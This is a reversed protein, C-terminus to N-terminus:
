VKRIFECNPSVEVFHNRDGGRSVHQRCQNKALEDIPKRSRHAVDCVWDDIFWNADEAESICPGDGLDMGQELMERCIEVCRDQPDTSVTQTGPSSNLCGSVWIVALIVIPVIVKM